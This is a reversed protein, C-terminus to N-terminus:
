ATRQNQYRPDSQLAAQLATQYPKVFELECAQMILSYVTPYLQQPINCVSFFGGWFEGYLQGKYDAGVDDFRAFMYEFLASAAAKDMVVKTFRETM